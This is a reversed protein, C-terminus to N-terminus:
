IIRPRHVSMEWFRHGHVGVAANSVQSGSIGHTIRSALSSGGLLFLHSPLGNSFALSLPRAAEADNKCNVKGHWENPFKNITDM